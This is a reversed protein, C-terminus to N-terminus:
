ACEKSRRVIYQLYIQQTVRKQCAKNTTFVEGVTRGTARILILHYVLFFFFLFCSFFCVWSMGSPLSELILTRWGGLEMFGDPLCIRLCICGGEVGAPNQAKRAANERGVAERGVSSLIQAPKWGEPCVKAPQGEAFGWTESCSTLLSSFSRPALISDTCPHCHQTLGNRLRM